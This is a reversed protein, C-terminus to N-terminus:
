PRMTGAIEVLDEVSARDQYGRFVVTPFRPLTPDDLTVIVYAEDWTTCAAEAGDEGESAEDEASTCEEYTQTFSVAPGMPTSFEEVGEPNEVHELTVYVGRDGDKNTADQLAEPCTNRPATQVSFRLGEEGTSQVNYSRLGACGSKADGGGERRYMGHIATDQPVDLSFRTVDSFRLTHTDQPMIRPMYVMAAIVVILLLSVCAFVFALLRAFRTKGHVPRPDWIHPDDEPRPPTQSM